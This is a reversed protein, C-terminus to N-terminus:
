CCFQAIPYCMCVHRYISKPQFYFYKHFFIFFCFYFRTLYVYWQGVSLSPTNVAEIIDSKIKMVGDVVHRLKALTSPAAKRLCVRKHEQWGEDRCKASCYIVEVRHMLCESCRLTKSPQVGCVSCVPTKEHAKDVIEQWNAQWQLLAAFEGLHGNHLSLEMYDSPRKGIMLLVDPLCVKNTELCYRFTKFETCSAKPFMITYEHPDSM